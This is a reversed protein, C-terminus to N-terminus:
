TALGIPFDNFLYADVSKGYNNKITRNSANCNANSKNVNNM